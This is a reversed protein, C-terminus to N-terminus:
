TRVTIRAVPAGSSPGLYTGQILKTCDNLLKFKHETNSFVFFREVEFKPYWAMCLPIASSEICIVKFIKLGPEPYPGSNELDYEIFNCDEALTFLRPVSGGSLPPGFLVERIPLHHSQYKGLFNWVALDAGTEASSAAYHYAGVTM